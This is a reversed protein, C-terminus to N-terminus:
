ILELWKQLELDILSNISKDADLVETKLEQGTM